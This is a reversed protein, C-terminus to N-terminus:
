ARVGGSMRMDMRTLVPECRTWMREVADFLPDADSEIHRFTTRVTKLLYNAPWVEWQPVQPTVLDTASRYFWLWLRARQVQEASILEEGILMATIASDLSKWYAETDTVVTSMGCESWESWGAQIVPIGYAPLENSVSGRVTVGLDVVSWLGNKSLKQSPQFAMHRRQAYRRAVSHFFDTSDYRFQSPHDLFLWQVEASTSAFRATEEFWDALTPFAQHNTGPADSVAHNFVAVIPRSSDFGLRAAIHTRLRAREGGNRIDVSASAGGRWWSPRGLNVKSRWAVLEANPWLERRRTWVREQFFSGIQRTLEGRFTHEGSDREPFLAYAKLCGTQQTQVVPVGARRASEVALGWHDYDVHSTVLAVASGSGLLAEYVSSIAQALARRRRFRPDAIPNEPLRPTKIVRCYTASVFEALASDGISESPTLPKGFLDVRVATPADSRVPGEVLRYLDIVESAGYSEVLREVLKVDFETWLAEHWMAEVGTVVVLRAPFMRRIANAVALNRLTVRIDQHFAEVVVYRQSPTSGLNKRWYVAASNLFLDFERGDAQLWV